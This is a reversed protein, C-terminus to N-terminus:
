HELQSAFARRCKSRTVEPEHFGIGLRKRNFFKPEIGGDASPARHKHWVEICHRASYRLEKNSAARERRRNPARSFSHRNDANAIVHHPFQRFKWRRLSASRM